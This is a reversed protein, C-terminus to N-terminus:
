LKVLHNAIYQAQSLTVDDVEVLQSILLNTDDKANNLDDGYAAQALLANHYTDSINM